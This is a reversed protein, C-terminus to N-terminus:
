YGHTVGGVLRLWTVGGVVLLWTDRLGGGIVIHWAFWWWYGHTVCIVVLLTIQQVRRGSFAILKRWAICMELLIICVNRSLIKWTTTTLIGFRSLAERKGMTTGDWVQVVRLSTVIVSIRSSPQVPPWLLPALNRAWISLYCIRFILVVYM